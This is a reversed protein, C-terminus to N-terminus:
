THENKERIKNQEFINKVNIDYLSICNVKEKKRTIRM